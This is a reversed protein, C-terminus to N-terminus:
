LAPDTFNQIDTYLASLNTASQNLFKLISEDKTRYGLSDELNLLYGVERTIVRHYTRDLSGEVRARELDNNINTIYETEEAAITETFAFKGDSSSYTKTLISTSETQNYTLISSINTTLARFRSSKIQANYTAITQSLNASRLNIRELLTRDSTSSSSSFIAAIIVLLFVVGTAIAVLKFAKKPLPLSDLLSGSPKPAAQRNDASIQNLYDLNDM